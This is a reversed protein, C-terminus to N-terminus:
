IIDAKSDGLRYILINISYLHHNDYFWQMHEIIEYLVRCSLRLSEPVFRGDGVAGCFTAVRGVIM